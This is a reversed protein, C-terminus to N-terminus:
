IIIFKSLDIEKVYVCQFFMLGMDTVSNTIFSLFDIQNIQIDYEFISIM